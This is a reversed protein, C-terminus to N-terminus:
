AEFTLLTGAPFGNRGPRTVTLRGSKELPTLANKRLHAKRYPTELTVWREVVDITATKGKFTQSLAAILPTFDPEPQFLVDMGALRDHFSSGSGPDIKWMADKMLEVGRVHRTGHMLYYSLHGNMGYMAFSQVFPFNCVTSLQRKYLDHLFQVRQGSPVGQVAMYEQTGFLEDMHQSVKPNTAFRNIHDVMLNVFLECRDFVLLDRLLAIPVGSFGFPDVFAFTPALNQTTGTGSLANLIGRAADSFAEGHMEIKVNSPFPSHSTVIKQVQERLSTLRAADKECFVFVVECNTMNQLYGHDLLTKMAIVPSGEEGQDYIGPGAFGDLFVIRGNHAALIPFWGGLYSRLIDHKAKTHPDLPWVTSSAAM